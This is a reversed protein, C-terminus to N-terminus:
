YWGASESHDWAGCPTGYRGSIYGLGWAIQTAPNTEWDSGASAMKSGPLAQPIGHAGSSNNHANVNWGSERNWLAVLCGLQESGWGRAAVQEAAIAQAGAPNSPASPYSRQAPQAEDENKDSQVEPEPEPAPKPKEIVVVNYLARDLVIAPADESEYSQSLSEAQLSPDAPAQAAWAPAFSVSLVTAAGILGLTLARSLRNVPSRM